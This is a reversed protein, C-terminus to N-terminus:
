KLSNVYTTERQRGIKANNLLVANECRRDKFGCLCCADVLCTRARVGDGHGPQECLM